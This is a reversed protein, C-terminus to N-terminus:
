QRTPGDPLSRIADVVVALGFSPQRERDSLGIM